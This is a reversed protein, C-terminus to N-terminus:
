QASRVGAGGAVSAQRQERAALARKVGTTYPGLGHAMLRRLERSGVTRGRQIERRSRMISPLGRVADVKARLVPGAQGRLSYWGVNLLNM